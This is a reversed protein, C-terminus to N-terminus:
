RQKQQGVRAKDSTNIIEDPVYNTALPCFKPAIPLEKVAPKTPTRVTAIHTAYAEKGPWKSSPNIYAQCKQTLVMQGHENAVSEHIFVRDCGNCKDVIRQSDDYKRMAIKAM